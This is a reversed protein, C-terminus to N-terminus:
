GKLFRFMSPIDGNKVLVSKKYSM